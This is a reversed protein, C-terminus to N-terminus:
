FSGISKISVFKLQSKITKRMQININKLKTSLRVRFLPPFTQALKNKWMVTTATIDAKLKSCTNNM